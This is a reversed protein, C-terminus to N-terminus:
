APARMRGAAPAPLRWVAISVCVIWVLLPLLGLLPVALGDISFFKSRGTGGFITLSNLAILFAAVYGVWATWGPLVRSRATAYAVTGISIALPFIVMWTVVLHAGLLTRVAAPDVESGTDIAAAGFLGILVGSIAIVVLASGFYLAAAWEYDAASRLVSRLGSAFILYLALGISYVFLVALLAGRNKTVYDALKADEALGPQVGASGSIAIFVVWSLAYLLGIVAIWRQWGWTSM